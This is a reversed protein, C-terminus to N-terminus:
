GFNPLRAQMMGRGGQGARTRYMSQWRGGQYVDLVGGRWRQEASIEEKPQGLADTVDVTFAIEENLSISGPQVLDIEEHFGTKANIPATVAGFQSYPNWIFTAPRPTLLSLLVVLSAIALATRSASW